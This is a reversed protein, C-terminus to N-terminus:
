QCAYADENRYDDVARVLRCDVSSQSGTKWSLTLSEKEKVHGVFCGGEPQAIKELKM